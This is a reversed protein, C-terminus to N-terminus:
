RRGEGKSSIKWLLAGLVNGVAGVGSIIIVEDIVKELLFLVVFMLTWVMWAAPTKIKGRLWRLLPIACFCFCLIAVTPIVVEFQNERYWIPFYHLTVAVPPITCLVLSLFRLFNRVWPRM